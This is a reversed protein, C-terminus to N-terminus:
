TILEGISHLQLPDKRRDIYSLHPLTLTPGAMYLNDGGITFTAEMLLWVGIGPDFMYAAFKNSGTEAIAFNLYGEGNKGEGALKTVDNEVYYGGIASAGYIWFDNQNEFYGAELWEVRKYLIDVRIVGIRFAVFADPNTLSLDNEYVYVHGGIGVANRPQQLTLEAHWREM